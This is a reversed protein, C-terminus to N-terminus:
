LPDRKAQRADEDQSDLNKLNLGFSELAKELVQVSFMGTDDM